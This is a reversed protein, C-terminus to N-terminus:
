VWLFTHSHCIGARVLGRSSQIVQAWGALTWLARGAMLSLSTMCRCWNSATKCRWMPELPQSCWNCFGILGMVVMPWAPCVLTPSSSLGTGSLSPPFLPSCTWRHLWRLGQLSRYWHTGSHKPVVVPPPPPFGVTNGEGELISEM